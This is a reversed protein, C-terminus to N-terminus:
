IFDRISKPYLIIGIIDSFALLNSVFNPLAFSKTFLISFIHPFFIIFVIGLASGIPGLFIASIITIAGQVPLVRAFSEFAIVSM